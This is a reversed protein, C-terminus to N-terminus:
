REVSYSTSRRMKVAAFYIMSCRPRFAKLCLYRETQQRAPVVGAVAVVDRRSLRRAGAALDARVRLLLPLPLLRRRHPPFIMAGVVAQLPLVLAALLVVRLVVTLHRLRLVDAVGVRAAREALLVGDRPQDRDLLLFVWSVPADLRM